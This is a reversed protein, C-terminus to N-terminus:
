HFEMECSCSNHQSFLWSQLTGRYFKKWKLQTKVVVVSLIINFLLKWSFTVSIFCVIKNDIDILDPLRCGNRSPALCHSDELIVYSVSYKSMIDFVDEPTRRGYMQYLQGLVCVCVVFGSDNICPRLTERESHSWLYAALLLLSSIVIWRHM